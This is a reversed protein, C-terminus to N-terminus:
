RGDALELNVPVVIGDSWGWLQYTAGVGVLLKCHCDEARATVPALGVLLALAGVQTSWSLQARRM